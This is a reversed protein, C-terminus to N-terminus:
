ELRRAAIDLHLQPRVAVRQLLRRLNRDVIKWIEGYRSIDRIAAALEIAPGERNKNVQAVSQARLQKRAL